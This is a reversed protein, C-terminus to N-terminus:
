QIIADRIVNCIFKAFTWLYINVKECFKLVTIIYNLNTSVSALM